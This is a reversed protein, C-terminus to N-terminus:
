ATLQYKMLESANSLRASFVEIDRAIRLNIKQITKNRDYNKSKNNEILKQNDYIIVEVGSEKLKRIGEDALKRRAMDEKSPRIIVNLHGIKRSNLLMSFNVHLNQAVNGGFGSVLVFSNSKEINNLLEKSMSAWDNDREMFTTVISACDLPERWNEFNDVKKRYDYEEKSILAVKVPDPESISIEVDEKETSNSAFVGRDKVQISRYITRRIQLPKVNRLIRDGAEGFAVVVNDMREQYYKRILSRLANEMYQTEVTEM